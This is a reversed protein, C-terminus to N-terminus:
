AKLKKDYAKKLAQGILKNNPDCKYVIYEDENAEINLELCNLEDM